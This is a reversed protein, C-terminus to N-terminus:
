YSSRMEIGKIEELVFESGDFLLKLYSTNQIAYYPETKTQMGLYKLLVRMVGGHTVALVTNGKHAKHIESSFEFFRDTIAQDNELYFDHEERYKKHKQPDALLEEVQIMEERPRGEFPGFPRERLLRTTAVPQKKHHQAIIVATEWARKLDSAFIARFEIGRLEGALDLAQKKGTANLPVDTHGQILGKANWDTEGHRVVYFVTHRNKNTTKM